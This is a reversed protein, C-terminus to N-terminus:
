KGGNFLKAINNAILIAQAESERYKQENYYTQMLIVDTNTFQMWGEPTGGNSLYQAYAVLYSIDPDSTGEKVATRFKEYGM